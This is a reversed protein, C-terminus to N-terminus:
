VLYWWVWLVVYHYYGFHVEGPAVQVMKRQGIGPQRPSSPCGGGWCLRGGWQLLFPFLSTEFTKSIWFEELTEKNLRIKQCKSRWVKQNAYWKIVSVSSFSTNLNCFIRFSLFFMIETEDSYQLRSLLGSFRRSLSEMVSSMMLVCLRERFIWSKDLILLFNWTHILHWASFHSTLNSRSNRQINETQCPYSTFLNFVFDESCGFQDGSGLNIGFYYFIGGWNWPNWFFFFVFVVKKDLLVTEICIFCDSLLVVASWGKMCIQMHLRCCPILVIKSFCAM